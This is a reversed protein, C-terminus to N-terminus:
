RLVTHLVSLTTRRGINSKSQMWTFLIDVLEALADASDSVIESSIAALEKTVQRM